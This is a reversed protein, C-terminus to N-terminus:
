AVFLDILHFVYMYIYRSAYKPFQQIRKKNDGDWVNVVGDCGGTAFTGFKPHFAIVNVPFVYTESDSVKERHCKFAYGKKPPNFYELGVRGETTSVAYGIWIGM